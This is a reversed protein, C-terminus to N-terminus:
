VTIIAACFASIARVNALDILSSAILAYRSSTFRLYLSVHHSFHFFVPNFGPKKTKRLYINRYILQCKEPM